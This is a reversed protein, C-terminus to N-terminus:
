LKEMNNNNNNNNITFTFLIRKIDFFIFLWVYLVVNRFTEGFLSSRKKLKWRKESKSKYRYAFM